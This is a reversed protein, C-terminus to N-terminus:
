AQYVGPYPKRPDDQNRPPRPAWWPLNNPDFNHWTNPDNIDM